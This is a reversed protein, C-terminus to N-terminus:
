PAQIDIVLRSPNTLIFARYCTAGSVGLGLQVVGEFDELQRVEVLTAYGTKIDTSGSYSTHLDAGHIIVLVGNTGTLTVQDGKPSNTFTTGSQPRVEISAPQGNQFQVTLRDYGPHTGTRLDDIFALALAQASNIPASSTCVFPPLSSDPTASPGPSPSTVPSASPTPSSGVGPGITNAPRNMPNAVFLVGIVVAAIAAAAFGAIWFPGRQEPPEALSSRVRDSLAASPSGTVEDFVHGLERRFNENSV